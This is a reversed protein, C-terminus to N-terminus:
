ALMFVALWTELIVQAAVADVHAVQPKKKRVSASCVRETAVVTSLTEDVTYVPLQYRQQLQQCFQRITATITNDSGDAHLPFGVVLGQPQWEQILAGIHEWVPEQSKVPVIALPRATGTLTQGVAVGIRKSGYDFGMITYRTSSYYM